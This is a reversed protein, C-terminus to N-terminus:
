GVFKEQQFLQTQKKGEQLKRIYTLLKEYKESEISQIYALYGLTKKSLRGNEKIIDNYIAARINRKIDRLVKTNGSNIVLGTVIKRGSPQMLRTKKTNINYGENEVMKKVISKLDELNSRNYSSFIMDDAYRTYIISNNNCYDQINQDINRFVINSIMPSTSAGQPVSDNYLCYNTLVNSIFQSYGINKFISYVKFRNISPFFDKLDMKLVYDSGCHKQANPKIGFKNGRRFGMSTDSIPVKDLIDVLIWSQIVRLSYSPSSIDRIGGGKKPITFSKYYKESFKSMKFLLRESILLRYSIDSINEIVPFGFAQLKEKNFTSDIM